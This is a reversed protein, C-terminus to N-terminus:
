RQCLLFLLCVLLCTEEGRKDLTAPLTPRSSGMKTEARIRFDYERQPKLGKLMHSTGLIGTEMRLWRSDPIERAEIIYRVPGARENDPARASLWKLRVSDPHVDLIVPKDQPMDPIGDTLISLHTLYVM